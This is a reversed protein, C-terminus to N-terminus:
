LIMGNFTGAELFDIGDFIRGIVTTKKNFDVEYFIEEQWFVKVTLSESNYFDITKIRFVIRSLSIKTEYYSKEYDVDFPKNKWLWYKMTIGKLTNWKM